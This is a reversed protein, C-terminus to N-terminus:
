DFHPSRESFNKFDSCECTHSAPHLSVEVGPAEQLFREYFPRLPEGIADLYRAGLGWERAEPAQTGANTQAGAETALTM